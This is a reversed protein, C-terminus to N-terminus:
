RVCGPLQASDNPLHGTFHISPQIQQNGGIRAEERHEKVIVRPIRAQCLQGGPNMM